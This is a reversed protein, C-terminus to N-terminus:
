AVLTHPRSSCFYLYQCWCRMALMDSSSIVEEEESEEEEEEEEEAEAEPAEEEEERAGAVGGEAVALGLRL